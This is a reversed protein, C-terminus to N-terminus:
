VISRKKVSIKLKEMLLEVDKENILGKKTMINLFKEKEGDSFARKQDIRDLFFCYALGGGCSVLRDDAPILDKIAKTKKDIDCDASLKKKDLLCMMPLVFDPDIPDKMDCNSIKKLLNGGNLDVGVYEKGYFMGKKKKAHDENLSAAVRSMYATFETVGGPTEFNKAKLKSITQELVEVFHPKSIKYKNESKNSLHKNNMFHLHDKGVNEYNTRIKRVHGNFHKQLQAAAPENGLERLMAMGMEVKDTIALETKFNLQFDKITIPKGQKPGSRYILSQQIISGINDQFSESKLRESFGSLRFLSKPSGDSVSDVFSKKSVKKKKDDEDDEKALSSFMTRIYAYRGDKENLEEILTTRKEKLKNFFEQTLGKCNEFDAYVFSRAKNSDLKLVLFEDFTCNTFKVHGVNVEFKELDLGRFDVGNIIIQKSREVKLNKIDSLSKGIRIAMEVPAIKTLAPLENLGSFYKGNAITHGTKEKSIDCCTDFAKTFYSDKLETSLNKAAFHNKISQGNGYGRLYNNITQWDQKDFMLEDGIKFQAQNYCLFTLLSNLELCKGKVCATKQIIYQDLTSKQWFTCNVM